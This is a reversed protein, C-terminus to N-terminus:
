RVVPAQIEVTRPQADPYFLAWARDQADTVVWPHLVFTPQDCKQGAALTEYLKRKGDFDLWYLKVTENSKNIFTIITELGSNASKLGKLEGAHREQATAATALGIVLVLLAASIRARSLRM